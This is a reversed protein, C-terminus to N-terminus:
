RAHNRPQGNGGALSAEAWATNAVDGQADIRGVGSFRAAGDTRKGSGM